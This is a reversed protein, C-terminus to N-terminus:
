FEIGQQAPTGKQYPHKIETMDTILDAKRLLSKAAGRGTLVLHMYQPKATILEVIAKATILRCSVACNIEDLIIMDYRSARMMGRIYDVGDAAARRHESFPLSDGCLRCFGKGFKKVTILPINRLSADESYAANKLFQAFLVRRKAGAARLALGIAATTKGKGNGTYVITLGRQEKQPQKRSKKKMLVRSQRQGGAAAAHAYYEHM